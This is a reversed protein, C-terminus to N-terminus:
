LYSSWVILKIKFPEFGNLVGFYEYIKTKGFSPEKKYDPNFRYDESLWMIISKILNNHTTPASWSTRTENEYVKVFSNNSSNLITNKDLKIKHSNSFHFETNANSIDSYYKLIKFSPKDIEDQNYFKAPSQNSCTECWFIGFHNEIFNTVDSEVVEDILLIRGKNKIFDTIKKQNNNIDDFSFFVIIDVENFNNDIKQLSINIIRNKYSFNFPELSSNLSEFDIQSCFCGLKIESNPIGEIVVSFDINKSLLSKLIENLETKNNEIILNNLKNTKTLSVFSDEITLQLLANDWNSKEAQHTFFISMSSILITSAIISELIKIFGKM